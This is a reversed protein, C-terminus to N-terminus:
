GCTISGLMMSHPESSMYEIVCRTAVGEKRAASAAEEFTAAHSVLQGRYVVVWCESYLDLWRKYNAMLYESDKKFQDLSATIEATDLEQQIM